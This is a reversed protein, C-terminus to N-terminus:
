SLLGAIRVVAAPNPVVLDMRAIARIESEDSNFLRSRDIEVAVDERRVVVVERADYVYASSATTATGHTEATSLQSSLMVPVGYISRRPAEGPAGDAMLVPLASGTTEKIKSLTRWTRPHMVIVSASANAEVVTGIADAFPDLDTPAAGNTGMSVTGIGAVNALGRIQPADGSGEFFGLDGRLAISRVLGAAIREFLSPNSDALSENSVRQLGALKRPVATITDAGLDSSSITGAEAVWAATPDSTVRPITVTDRTTTIVSFGSSLGVSTAALRDFFTGPLDTPTFAAGAGSAGSIARTLWEGLAHPSSGGSPRAATARLERVEDDRVQEIRDDIERLEGSREAYARLEDPTLDRGDGDTAARTIIEDAAARATARSARLDDLLPM